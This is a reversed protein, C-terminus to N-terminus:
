CGLSTFARNPHYSVANGQILGIGGLLALDTKQNIKNRVLQKDAL